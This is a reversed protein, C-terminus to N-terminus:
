TAVSHTHYQVYVEEVRDVIDVFRNSDPSRISLVLMLQTKGHSHFVGVLRTRSSLELLEAPRTM